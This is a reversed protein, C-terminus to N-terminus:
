PISVSNVRLSFPQNTAGQPFNLGGEMLFGVGSVVVTGASDAVSISTSTGLSAVTHIRSLLSNSYTLYNASGSIMLDLPGPRGQRIYDGLDTVDIDETAARISIDTAEAVALAGVALTAKYGVLGAM